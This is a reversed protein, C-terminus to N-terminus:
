YPVCLSTTDNVKFWNCKAAECSRQSTYQACGTPSDDGPERPEPTPTPCPPQPEFVPLDAVVLQNDPMKALAENIQIAPLWVFCTEGEYSAMKWETNLDRALLPLIEGAMPIKLPDCITDPGKRCHINEPVPFNLFVQDWEDWGFEVVVDQIGPGLEITKGAVTDNVLPDTWTGDRLDKNSGWSSVTQEKTISVCYTGPAVVYFYQLGGFIRSDLGTSPCPGSGLEVQFNYMSRDPPHAYEGNGHVFLSNYERKCGESLRANNPVNYRTMDCIDEYLRVNIRAADDSIYHTQWCDEDTVWHFQRSDSWPGTSTGDNARIRWFLTSCGSFSQNLIQKHDATSGYDVIDTFGPDTAFQFDYWPPLCGGKYHWEFPEQHNHSIWANNM